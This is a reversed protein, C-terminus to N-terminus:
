SGDSETTTSALSAFPRHGQQGGEDILRLTRAAGDRGDRAAAEIAPRIVDAVAREPPLARRLARLIEDESADTRLEAALQRAAARYLREIEPSVVREVLRLGKRRTAEVIRRAGRELRRQASSTM